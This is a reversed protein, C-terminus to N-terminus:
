PKRGNLRELLAYAYSPALQKVCNNRVIDKIWLDIVMAANQVDAELETIRVEQMTIIDAAAKDDPTGKEYLREILSM